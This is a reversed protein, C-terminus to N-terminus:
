DIRVQLDVSEGRIRGRRCGGWFIPRRGSPSTSSPLSRGHWGYVLGVLEQDTKPRTVLSVAVPSLGRLHDLVLPRSICTRPWTGPMRRFPWGPWLPPISSSWRGCRLPRSRVPSCVGLKWGPAGAELVNGPARDRVFPRHLFRLAGPRLGHHKRIAHGHVRDGVSAGLGVDTCWRGIRVCQGTAPTRKIVARYIDYTWVTAFASINGAMGRCSGPSSPRSALEWSGPAWIRAMM